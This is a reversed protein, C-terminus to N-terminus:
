DKLNEKCLGYKKMRNIFLTHTVKLSRAAERISKTSKLSDIIMKKELTELSDKLSNDVSIDETTLNYNLIIDKAQITKTTSLAAARELVNQFERVNGPWNYNILKRMAEPEIGTITKNYRESHIKSFYEFLIPIEEKRERLPPININFINIRFLLDLRFEKNRVMQDLNQNTASILRADISIEKHGGVRRVKREQLVRLLKAQIHPAMEGIEDLFVTGSSAVEFIGAKGEKTGGTFTGPEYGFLESELLQDPIAACNIAIFPKNRRNSNNHIARAFLEKGTGSEGTILVPSHSKSYQKGESIVTIMINSEGIIDDFTIPNDYRSFVSSKDIDYLSILHGTSVEAENKILQLNVQYLQNGIEIRETVNSKIGKVNSLSSIFRDYDIYKRINVGTIDKGKCRFINEAAYNNIYKIDGNKNVLTVGHPILDLVNKMQTDKEEFPFLDIEEISEWESLNEFEKKILEWIPEEVPMLKIYAVYAYVEMWILGVGYKYLVSLAKYTLHPKDEVSTLKIKKTEM